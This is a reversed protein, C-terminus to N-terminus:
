PLLALALLDGGVLPLLTEPLVTMLLADALAADRGASGGGGRSTPRAYRERPLHIKSGARRQRPPRRSSVQVPDVPGSSPSWQMASTGSSPGARRTSTSPASSRGSHSSRDTAECYRSRVKKE